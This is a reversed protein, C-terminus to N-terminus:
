LCLWWDGAVRTVMRRQQKGAPKPPVVVGDLHPEIVVQVDHAGMIRLALHRQQVCLSVHEVHHLTVVILGALRLWIVLHSPLAAMRKSWMGRLLERLLELTKSRESQSLLKALSFAVIIDTLTMIAKKRESKPLLSHGVHVRFHKPIFTLTLMSVQKCHSHQHACYLDLWLM